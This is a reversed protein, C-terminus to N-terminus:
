EEKSSSDTRGEKGYLLFGQIGPSKLLCDVSFVLFTTSLLFRMGSWENVAKV